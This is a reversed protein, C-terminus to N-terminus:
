WEMTTCIAQVAASFGLAGAVAGAKSFQQLELCDLGGVPSSSWTDSGGVLLSVM